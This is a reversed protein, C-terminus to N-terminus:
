TSCEATRNCIQVPTGRARKMKQIAVWNVKPDLQKEALAIVRYGSVTLEQLKVHFDEPISDEVCLEEITLVVINNKMDRAEKLIREREERAEKLIAENSAQLSEMEQRAKEAQKLAGKISAERENVAELIPKWAFKRLVFILTVFVM